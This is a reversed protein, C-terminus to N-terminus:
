HHLLLLTVVLPVLLNDLGLVGLNEIIAALLSTVLMWILSIHLDVYHNIVLLIMLSSIFFTVTGIISKTNDFVQYNHRKGFRVGIVGALGDAIAMQLIAAAFVWKRHTILAIGIVSLAFCLEGYTPRQVTHIANFLRLSKSIGVVVFFAVGLIEIDRWSLYLPWFAVFTGVTIHIFKRSIENHTTRVRWWIENAILLAGVIAVTLILYM